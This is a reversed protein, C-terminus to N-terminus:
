VTRPSRLTNEAPRQIEALKSQETEVESGKLWKAVGGVVATLGGGAMLFNALPSFHASEEPRGGFTMLYGIGLAVLGGIILKKTIVATEDRFENELRAVKQQQEIEHEPIIRFRRMNNM